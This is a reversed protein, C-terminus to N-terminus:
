TAPIDNKPLDFQRWQVHVVPRLILVAQRDPVFNDIHGDLQSKILVHLGVGFLPIYQTPLAADTAMFGDAYWLPIIEL